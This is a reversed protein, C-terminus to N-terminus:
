AHGALRLLPPNLPTTHPLLRLWANASSVIPPPNNARVSSSSCSALDATRTRRSRSSARSTTTTTPSSKRCGFEARCGWRRGKVRKGKLFVGDGSRAEVDGRRLDRLLPLERRPFLREPPRKLMARLLVTVPGVKHDIFLKGFLSLNQCYLQAQAGDVEWITYSGRQYVRRGPPQLMSCSSSHMDWGARTRM